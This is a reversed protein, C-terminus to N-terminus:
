RAQFYLKLHTEDMTSVATNVIEVDTLFHNTSYATDLTYSFYCGCALSYFNQTNQHVISLTDSMGHYLIRYTTVSTDQRLPLAWQKLQVADAYLLSDRGLGCISVTDMASYKDQVTDGAENTYPTSYGELSVYLCVSVDERCQTDSDSCATMLCLLLLPLIAIAYHKM